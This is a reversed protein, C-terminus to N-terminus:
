KYTANKERFEINPGKYGKEMKSLSIRLSVKRRVVISFLICAETFSGLAELKPDAQMKRIMDGYSLNGTGEVIIADPQVRRKKPKKDKKQQRRNDM